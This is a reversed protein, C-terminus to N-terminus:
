EARNSGGKEERDRGGRRSRKQEPEPKPPDGPMPSRSAQGAAVREALNAGVKMQFVGAVDGKGSAVEAIKGLREDANYLPMQRALRRIAALRRMTDQGM